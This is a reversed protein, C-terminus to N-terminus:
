LSFIDECVVSYCPTKFFEVVTFVSMVVTFVSMVVTFVSQKIGSKGM